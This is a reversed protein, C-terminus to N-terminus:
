GLYRVLVGGQYFESKAQNCEVCYGHASKYKTKLYDCVELLGLEGSHFKDGMIRANCQDCVWWVDLPNNYGNYHHAEIRHHKCSVGCLQCLELKRVKGSKVARHLKTYARDREM